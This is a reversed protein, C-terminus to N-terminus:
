FNLLQFSYVLMSGLGFLMCDFGCLANVLKSLSEYNFLVCMSKTVQIIYSCHTAISKLLYDGDFDLELWQTSAKMTNYFQVLLKINKHSNLKLTQM